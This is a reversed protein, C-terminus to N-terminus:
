DGSLGESLVARTATYPPPAPIPTLHWAPDPLPTPATGVLLTTPDTRLGTGRAKLVAEKRTWARAFAAPREAAPLLALEAEEAPHLAGPLVHAPIREVDVGVVARESLAIVFLDGAHALSFHVPNGPVVPRGHPGGCGACPAQHIRVHEPRQGLREGLLIRLAVHAALFRDRDEARAFRALRAREAASLIGANREAHAQRPTM